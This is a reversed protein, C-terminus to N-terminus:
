LVFREPRHRLVRLITVRRIAGGFPNWWKRPEDRLAYQLWLDAYYMWWYAAPEIGEIRVAGAPVGGSIELLRELEDISNQTLMRRDPDEGPQDRVWDELDDHTSEHWRVIVRM